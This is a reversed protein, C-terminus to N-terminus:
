KQELPEFTIDDLYLTGADGSIWCVFHTSVIGAPWAFPAGSGAPGVTTELKQWGAMPGRAGLSWQWVQGNGDAIQKGTADSSYGGLTAVTASDVYANLSIRYVRRPDVPVRFDAGASDQGNKRLTIALCHSGGHTADGPVPNGKQLAVRLGDTEVPAFPALTGDEFGGNSFLNATRPPLPRDSTIRTGQASLEGGSGLALAVEGGRLQAVGAMGAFHIGDGDFSFPANALFVYDVGASHTVKVCRGEALATCTAPPEAKLRPLLVTTFGGGYATAAILGTQTTAMAHWNWDPFMGSGSTRTREETKLEVGQPALFVVDMDVDERGAVLAAQPSLTVAQATLWLRWSAPGNVALSDNIVFYTLSEPTAGKVLAIQRTWGQKVGAVYDFRPHTVFDRVLMVGHGAVPSEIMSHDEEPTCGYYGFEDALIRGKGYLLISGSDNDYHAHNNGLILHLYTERSSPYTDRLVVGTQPFLESGYAPVSEPLAPDTLIRRFGAFAPFFGGIGPAGYQNNQRFQWQMEAAYAPDRERFLYALLGFEGNPENMYTNGVAPRHRFGGLRSDPPSDIKAFWRGVAKVKPDTYLWDNFGANHAMLLVGLIMDYSVMAYHPAELWGGNDDSWTDVQKKLESLGEDVWQRAAPHDSIFAALAARYGYVSTTMNPNGSFGRVPSWYEPRSTTYGLFAAQACVRGRQEPTLYPSDLMLDCLTVAVALGSQHHPAAGLPMGNQDILYNISDQLLTLATQALLAGLRADDTALYAPIADDLNYITLEAPNDAYHQARQRYPAVDTAAGRAKFRAVDERTMLLRPHEVASPWRMVYDKILDLPFHGYKVLYRYPLLSAFERKSDKTEALVVDRDFAGLLWQRQGYKATFGAHVGLEDRVVTVLPPVRKEAPLQPDVWVGAQCAALTLMDNSTTGYFGCASGRRDDMWWALWPELTFVTGASVEWVANKGISGDPMGKGYRYLLREIGFDKDLFLNITVPVSTAFSEDVLVVPENAYVRFRFEWAGQDRLGIRCRAEAVVPGALSVSVEYGVVPADAPLRSDGVWKGSVMQIGAFPGQGPELRQRLRVGTRSNRITLADETTEIRLDTAPAAGGASEAFGYRRTAFPALDVQLVIRAPGGEPTLLQYVVPKGAEDLLAAGALAQAKEAPTVPFTVCEATWTRGLEERLNFDGLVAETQSLAAVAMLLLRPIKLTSRM